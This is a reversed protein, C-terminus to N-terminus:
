FMCHLFLGNVVDHGIQLCLFFFCEFLLTVVVLKRGSVFDRKEFVSIELCCTSSNNEVLVVVQQGFFVEYRGESLWLFFVGSEAQWFALVGWLSQEFLWGDLWGLVWGNGVVAGAFGACASM